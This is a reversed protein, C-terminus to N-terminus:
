PTASCLLLAAGSLLPCSGRRNEQATQNGGHTFSHLHEIGNQFQQTFIPFRSFPKEREIAKVMLRMGPLEDRDLFDQAEDETAALFLWCGRRFRENM